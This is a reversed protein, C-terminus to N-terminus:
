RSQRGSRRPTANLNTTFLFMCPLWRGLATQIAITAIIATSIAGNQPGAHAVASPQSFLAVIAADVSLQWWVAMEAGRSDSVVAAAGDLDQLRCSDGAIRLAECFSKENSFAEVNADGSEEVLGACNALRSRAESPARHSSSSTGGRAASGEVFLDIRRIQSTARKLSGARMRRVTM